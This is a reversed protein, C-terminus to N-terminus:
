TSGWTLGFKPMIRRYHLRVEQSMETIAKASEDSVYAVDLAAPSLRKVEEGWSYPETTSTALGTLIANMTSRLGAGDALGHHVQLLLDFESVQNVQEPQVILYIFACDGELSPLAASQSLLAHQEAWGGHLQAVQVTRKVWKEVGQADEVQYTVEKGERIQSAILPHQWRTYIFARELRAQLDALSPQSSNDNSVSITVGLYPCNHGSAYDNLKSLM